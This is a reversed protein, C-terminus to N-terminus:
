ATTDDPGTRPAYAGLYDAGRGQGYPAAAHVPQGSRVARRHALRRRLKVGWSALVALVLLGLAGTQAWDPLFGVTVQFIESKWSAQTTHLM